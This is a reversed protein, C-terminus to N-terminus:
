RLDRCKVTQWLYCGRKPNSTAVAVIRCTVPRRVQSVKCDRHLIGVNRLFISSGEVTLLLSCTDCVLLDINSTAVKQNAESRKEKPFLFIYPEILKRFAVPTIIIIIVVIMILLVTKHLVMISEPLYRWRCASGPGSYATFALRDPM